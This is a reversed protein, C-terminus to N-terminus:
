KIGNKYLNWQKILAQLSNSIRRAHTHTHHPCALKGAYFCEVGSLLFHLVPHGMVNAVIGVVSRIEYKWLEHFM